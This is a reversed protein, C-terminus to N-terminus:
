PTFEHAHRVCTPEGGPVPTSSRGEFARSMVVNNREGTSSQRRPDDRWTRPPTTVDVRLDVGLNELDGSAGVPEDHLLAPRARGPLLGRACPPSGRRRVRPDVRTEGFGELRKGCGARIEAGVRRLAARTSYNHDAHHWPRDSPLGLRQLERRVWTPEPSFVPSRWSAGGGGETSTRSAKEANPAQPPVGYPRVEVPLPGLEPPHLGGARERVFSGFGRRPGVGVPLDGGLRCAASGAEAFGAPDGSTEARSAGLLFNRGTDIGAACGPVTCTRRPRAARATTVSSLAAPPRCSRRGGSCSGM